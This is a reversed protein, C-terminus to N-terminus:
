IGGHTYFMISHYFHVRRMREIEISDCFVMVNSKRLDHNILKDWLKITEREAAEMIAESEYAIDFM